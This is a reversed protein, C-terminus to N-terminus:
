DYIQKMENGNICATFVRKMKREFSDDSSMRYFKGLILFLQMIKSKSPNPIWLDDIKERFVREINQVLDVECTFKIAFDMFTKYM